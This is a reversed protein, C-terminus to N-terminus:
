LALQKLALRIYDATRDDSLADHDSQDRDLVMEQDKVLNKAVLAVAQHAELRNYGLGTLALIAEEKQRAFGDNFQSENHDASIHASNNSNYSPMSSSLFKTLKNKLEAILREAGKKGLGPTRTIAAIDKAAIADALQAPTLTGLIALAVKAGIGQVTLLLRFCRREELSLFGLLRIENERVLTEIWLTVQDDRAPLIQLTRTACEVEYGIGAVDLIISHDLLTDIRGTLKGIM